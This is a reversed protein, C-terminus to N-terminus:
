FEIDIPLKVQACNWGSIEFKSQITNALDTRLVLEIKVQKSEGPLLSFYNDEYIAYFFDPEHEFKIKIFFGIFQSPNSIKLALFNKAKKNYSFFITSLETNLKVEPLHNLESFINEYVLKDKQESVAMPYINTSPSSQNKQFYQNVLLLTKGIFSDPVIWSLQDIPQTKNAPASALGFCEALKTGDVTVLFTNYKIESAPQSNDNLLFIDASFKEGPQWLYKEFDAAVHIPQSAQKVFYYAPKPSGYWDVLSWSICPWTDNFQWYLLGSNRFKNIRCFEMNFANAIAQALQSKQIFEEISKSKGFEDAYRELKQLHNYKGRNEGHYEIYIEDCPWLKEKPTFKRYNEIVPFTNMGAESRFPRVIRYNTYPEKGHWVGWYHDDGKYPSARHFERTPDLQRILQELSDVITKSGINDPDFENGGCYMCLSPRNRIRLINARAGELFNERKINSFNKNSLFEQWTLIGLEDCLDYFGDTEFLGGGWVRLMNLHAEKALQLLHQYRNRDLRLLHDVPIWNAGKAFMKKGNILFTWPYSEAVKGLHYVNGTYEKMNRVFQEIDENDILKIERIGFQTEIQDSIKENELVTLRLCYLNQDGMGNPWWLKANKIEIQFTVTRTESALLEINKDFFINESQFDKASVVGNLTAPQSSDTLNSVECTINLLARNNPLLQTVVQPHDLWITEAIRLYVPKWIGIPVTHPAWDWAFFCQAISYLQERECDYSLGNLKELRRADEPAELRVALHNKRSFNLYKSIPFARPNFMGELQGIQQGNLWVEGKFVAGEFILDIFKNKFEASIEFDRCFWWEKEEVWLSKENNYSVYPDPIKGAYLLAQRVTGPVNAAIFDTKLYGSLFAKKKIGDGINFHKLLWKGDLSQKTQHTTQM